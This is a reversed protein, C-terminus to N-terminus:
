ALSFNNFSCSLSRHPTDSLCKGTYYVSKFSIDLSLKSSFFFLFKWIILCIEISLLYQAIFDYCLDYRSCLHCITKEFSQNVIYVVLIIRDSTNIELKLQISSNKEEKFQITYEVIISSFL